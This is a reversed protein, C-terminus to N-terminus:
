SQEMRGASIFPRSLRETKDSEKHGWLSYHIHDFVVFIGESTLFGENEIGFM